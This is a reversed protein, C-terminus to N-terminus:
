DSDYRLEEGDSDFDVNEEGEEVEEGDPGWVRFNSVYSDGISSTGISSTGISSSPLERHYGKVEQIVRYWNEYPSIKEDEEDDPEEDVVVIDEVENENENIFKIFDYLSLLLLLPCWFFYICAVVIM